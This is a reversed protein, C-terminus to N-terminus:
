TKGKKEKKGYAANMYHDNLVSAWYADTVTLNLFGKIVNFSSLLAPYTQILHEGLTKGLADPSQKLPKLLSFLVVTYDGEFEPKTQNIQFDKASFPQNFLQALGQIVAQQIGSTISMFGCKKLVAFILIHPKLGKKINNQ